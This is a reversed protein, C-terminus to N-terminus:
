NIEKKAFSEPPEISMVNSSRVILNPLGTVPDASPLKFIDSAIIKVKVITGDDLRYTSWAEAVAKFDMVEAEVQQGGLNLKVRKM